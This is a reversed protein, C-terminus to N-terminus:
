FTGTLPAFPNSCQRHLLRLSTHVHIPLDAELEVRAYWRLSLGMTEPGTISINGPLDHEMLTALTFSNDLASAHISGAPRITRTHFGSAHVIVHKIARVDHHDDRDVQARV